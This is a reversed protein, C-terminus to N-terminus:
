FQYGFNKRGPSMLRDELEFHRFSSGGPNWGVSLFPVPDGMSSFDLQDFSWALGLSYTFELGFFFYEGSLYAGLDLVPGLALYELDTEWQAEGYFGLGMSRLHFSWLRLDGQYFPLQLDLNSFGWYPALSAFRQRGSRFNLNGQWPWAESQGEADLAGEGVRHVTTLRMPGFFRWAAQISTYFGPRLSQSELGALASLGLQSGGFFSWDSRASERFRLGFGLYSGWLSSLDTDQSLSVLGGGLLSFDAAVPLSQWALPLSFDGIQTLQWRELDTLFGAVLNVALADIKQYLSLNAMYIEDTDRQISLSSNHSESLNAFFAGLGYTAYEREFDVSGVPGWLHLRPLDIFSLDGIEMAQQEDQVPIDAEQSPLPIPDILPRWSAKFFAPGQTRFSAYHIEGGIEAIDLLGTPDEQIYHTLIESDLDLRFASVGRSNQILLGLAGDEMFFAKLIPGGPNQFVRLDNGELLYLDQTGEGQLTFLIRKGEEDVKPYMVRHGKKQYLEEEQGDFGLRLLRHTDGLEETVLLGQGGPLFQPHWLPRGPHLEQWRGEQVLYLASDFDVSYSSTPDPIYSVWVQDSGDSSVDWQDPRALQAAHVLQDDRYIGRTKFVSSQFSWLGDRTEQPMSLWDSNPLQEALLYPYYKGPGEVWAELAEEWLTDEGKGVVSAVAFNWGFFPWNKHFNDIEKFAGPYNSELYDVWVYGMWYSRNAFGTVQSSVEGNSISFDYDEYHYAKLPMTFWPNRGRGGSTFETELYVAIGESAWTPITARPVIMLTEGFVRSLGGIWGEPSTLHFFHTLEHIFLEQLWSSGKASLLIAAPSALHLVLRRPAYAMFGNPLATQGQLVVPVRGPDREWWDSMLSYVADGYEALALASAQDEGHYHIDLFETSHTYWGPDQASLHAAFFLFGLGIFFRFSSKLRM